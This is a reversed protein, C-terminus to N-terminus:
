ISQAGKYLKILERDSLILDSKKGMFYYGSASDLTAPNDISIYDLYKFPFATLRVLLEIAKSLLKSNTLSALFARYSWALAMGTGSGAGSEIEEFKRFLRRHGLYTFRTFDYCAAHVQQMFPTEAYVLADKKLVRHIEEACQYPDVVHELVAQAIVGDFSRDEFPLSHADCILDTRPGFSVDTEILELDRNDLVSEMGNGAISGGIILVKANRGRLALLQAFKAYNRSSKINRNIDPLFKILTKKLKNQPSLNFFTNQENVFDDIAFISKDRDILIPIGNVLPFSANCDVNKCVYQSDHFKLETQCIPCCLSKEITPSKQSLNNM